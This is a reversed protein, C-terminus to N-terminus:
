AKKSLREAIEEVLALYFGPQESLKSSNAGFLIKTLETDEQIRKLGLRYVEVNEPTPDYHIHLDEYMELIKEVVFEHPSGCALLDGLVKANISLHEVSKSSLRDVKKALVAEV